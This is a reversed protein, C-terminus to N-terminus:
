RQLNNRYARPTVMTLRRFLTTFHSQNKFGTRLGIEALPLESSALLQKATEVRRQMLFQIPTQGTTQKFARAFHYQSLEVADAIETLSLDRELNAEIFELVRRHKHAPLGGFQLDPVLSDTSYHRLLHVALTNVLSEAYLRGAPMGNDVEAVLALGISRLLEDRQGCALVIEARQAVPFDAAARRIFEPALFIAMYELEDPWQASFDFGNPTISVQGVSPSRRQVVGQENRGEITISGALPVFVECLRHLRYDLKGPRVRYHGLRVGEWEISNKFLLLADTAPKATAAKATALPLANTLLRQPTAM